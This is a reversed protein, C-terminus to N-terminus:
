GKWTLKDLNAIIYDVSEQTLGPGMHFYNEDQTCYWYSELHWKDYMFDEDDLILIKDVGLQYYLYDSIEQARRHWVIKPTQESLELGYEALKEYLYQGMETPENGNRWESRWTSALVLEADMADVIQKLLAVKTSEIGVYGCIRDPTSDTNLVGDIDLFIINRM